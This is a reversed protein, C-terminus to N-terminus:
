NVWFAFMSSKIVAWPITILGDSPIGSATQGGDIGWPNRLVVNGFSDLGMVTYAHSAVLLPSIVSTNSGTATVVNKGLSLSYFFDWADQSLAGATPKGTLATLAEDPWAADQLGLATREQTWARQYLITWFKGDATPQPDYPTLTGDFVVDETVWKGAQTNPDTVEFLNVSYHAHGLYHIGGALDATHTRAVSTLAALFSCTPANQQAVDTPSVGGAAWQDALFDKASKLVTYKGTGRDIFNVGSGAQLTGTGSGGYIVANGTSGRLLDNGAGAILTDPGSGGFLSNNGTGAQMLTPGTGGWLTDAGSSGLLTDNGNGAILCSNGGGSQLLDNGEGAVLMDNGAGGLVTAPILIPDSGWKEQNLTVWDDGGLTNVAIRQVQAVAVTASPGSPTNVPVGVSLRGHSSWFVIADPGDTGEVTLTGDTGLTATVSAALLCRGELAEVSPRFRRAKGRVRPFM